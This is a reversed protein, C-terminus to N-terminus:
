SLAYVSVISHQSVSSPVVTLAWLGLFSLSLIPFSLSLIPFPNSCIDIETSLPCSYSMLCLIHYLFYLCYFHDTTLVSIVFAGYTQQQRPVSSIASHSPIDCSRVFESSPNHIITVISNPIQYVYVWTHTISVDYLCFYISFICAPFFFCTTSEWLIPITVM